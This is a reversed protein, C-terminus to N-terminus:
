GSAIQQMLGAAIGYHWIDVDEGIDLGPIELVARRDRM